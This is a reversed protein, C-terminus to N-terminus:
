DHHGGHHHHVFHQGYMNKLLKPVERPSGICCIRHNICLVRKVLSSIVGVEHTVLIVTIGSKNLKKLLDYFSQQAKVDVGATPEDLILLLPNQQLALAILVRQQQGGSLSVFKENFLNQIGVAKVPAKASLIEKVTGPFNKDITYRQPVYGIKDRPISMNIEGKTPSLLGLIVRILTTKGSGNPGIVAIFDKEKIEFSINELVINDSYAFSLGSVSVLNKVRM